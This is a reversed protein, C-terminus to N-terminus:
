AGGGARARTREVVFDVLKAVTDLNRYAGLGESLGFVKELRHILDLVDFSDLAMRGRFSADPTIRKEPVRLEDMLIKKIRALAEDHTM